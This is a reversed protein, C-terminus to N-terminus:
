RPQTEFRENPAEAAEPESQLAEIVKNMGAPDTTRAPSTDYRIHMEESTLPDYPALRWVIALGLAPLVLLAILMLRSLSM